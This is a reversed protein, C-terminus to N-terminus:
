ARSWLSNIVRDFSAAAFEWSYRAIRDRGYAVATARQVDSELLVREVGRAIDEPSAPDVYVAAPGCAEMISPLGSTVVRTGLAMAELPPLGFGEYFSPYVLCRASRYLSVLEQDSVHGLFRDLHNGATPDHSFVGSNENGVVVLSLRPHRERVSAVAQQVGAINKRPDVSGVALVYPSSPQEATSSARPATPLEFGNPIVHITTPDLGFCEVLRDKTFSSVTTVALARQCLRPVLLNFWARYARTFWEPHDSPSLDHVTVVQRRLSAPGFNCPSWLIAGRGVRLPLVFQEWLHGLAGRGFAFRPPTHVRTPITIRSSVNEAFREVGSTPRSRFRGNVVVHRARYGTGAIVHDYLQEVSHSIARDPRSPSPIVCSPVATPLMAREARSNAIAVAALARIASRGAFARARSQSTTASDGHVHWVVPLRAARAAMGGVIGSEVGHVHVISPALESLRRTLRSIEHLSRLSVVEVRVGAERLINGVPGDEGLFVVPEFREYATALYTLALGTRDPQARHHLLVARPPSGAGPTPAIMPITM